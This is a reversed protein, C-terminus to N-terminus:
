AQLTFFHHCYFKLRKNLISINSCVLLEQMLFVPFSRLMKLTIRDWKVQDQPTCFFAITTMASKKKSFEGSVIQQLDACCAPM